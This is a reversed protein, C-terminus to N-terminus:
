LQDIRWICFWLGAEKIKVRMIRELRWKQFPILKVSPKMQYSLITDYFWYLGLKEAIYKTGDTLLHRHFLSSYKYYNETGNFGLFEENLSRLKEEENNCM